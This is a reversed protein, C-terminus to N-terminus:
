WGERQLFRSAEEAAADLDMGRLERGSADYGVNTVQIMCVTKSDNPKEGPKMKKAFLIGTKVNAGYPCFTDVPLSVIIRPLIHQLLWSRVFQTSDSSLVNDPLVIALKGGPRLFQISRELGLIELPSNKKNRALEYHGLGTLAESGLLSGFPPNTIVIDFSDPSIDPYNAFDLLADTCRINSHGDGNLRMDTMAIRVMRESKEIGHLKGFAFEHFAKSTRGQVSAVSRLCETLFHGSGCFPDLILDSVKPVIIATMLECVPNPTFYQGMGSRITKGLVKQFARGKIDTQTKSLDYEELMKYCKVLAASSLRIPRNFVGRSREYQPIKLRFVRMDYESAERYFGRISAAHEETSGFNESRLVLAGREKAVEEEYSRTYLLKCLEELAEDPHIGDVDRMVSHIEFFIGELEKSLPLAPRRRGYELQRAPQFYEIDQIEDWGDGGFRRRYARNIKEATTIVVIGVTNLNEAAALLKEMRGNMKKDDAVVLLYPTDTSSNLVTGIIAEDIKAETTSDTPYLYKSFLASVNQSKKFM